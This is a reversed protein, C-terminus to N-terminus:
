IGQKYPKLEVDATMMITFKYGQRVTITPAINLQKQTIMMGTQGLQQGLSGAMTQGVTPNYFGGIQSTTNTNNQSYQMGATIVGMIFSSGFLQWYHNDVQDYFGSFGDM